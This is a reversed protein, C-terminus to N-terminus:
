RQMAAGSVKADEEESLMRGTVPDILHVGKCITCPRVPRVSAMLPTSPTMERGFSAAASAANPTEFSGTYGISDGSFPDFTGDPKTV